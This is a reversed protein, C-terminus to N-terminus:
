GGMVIFAGGEPAPPALDEKTRKAVLETVRNLIRARTVNVLRMKNENYWTGHYKRKVVGINGIARSITSALRRAAISDSPVRGSSEYGPIWAFNDVGKVKVWEVLQEFPPAKGAWRLNKMDRYRGYEHFSISGVMGESEESIIHEIDNKLDETAIVRKEAIAKQFYAVADAVTEPLVERVAERIDDRANSM